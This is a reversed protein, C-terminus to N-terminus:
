DLFEVDFRGYGISRGDCLGETQGSLSMIREFDELNLMVENIIARVEIMWPYFQPRVRIIRKGQVVVSARNVFKSDVNFLKDIDRPGEYELPVYQESFAVSREIQKGQKTAKAAQIICKRVCATPVVVQGNDIYLGGLFELRALEAHDDETKSRKKSVKAIERTFHDLPDALRPNHMVIPTRGTLQVMVEM